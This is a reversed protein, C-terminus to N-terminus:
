EGIRKRLVEVGYGQLISKVSRGVGNEVALRMLEVVGTSVEKGEHYRIVWGLMSEYVGNVVEKYTAPPDPNYLLSTLRRNNRVPLPMVVGERKFSTCDLFPANQGPPFVCTELGLEDVYLEQKVTFGWRQDFLQPTHELKKIKDCSGGVLEDDGCLALDVETLVQSVPVDLAISFVDIDMWLHLFCNMEATLSFGSPNGGCRLMMDGNPMVLPGSAIYDKLLAAVLAPMCTVAALYDVFMSSMTRNVCRDFATIDSAYTHKDFFRGMRRNWEPGVKVVVEPVREKLQKSWFFTYKAVIVQPVWDGGQISRYSDTLIKKGNYRDEKSHVYFSFQLNDQTLVGSVISDEIRDVWSALNSLREDETDGPTADIVDQFTPFRSCWPEGPSSDRKKLRIAEETTLVEDTIGLRRVLYECTEQYSEIKRQDLVDGYDVFKELEPILSADNGKVKAFIQDFDLTHEVPAVKHVERVARPMM